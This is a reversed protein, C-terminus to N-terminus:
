GLACEMVIITYPVRLLNSHVHPSVVPFVTRALRVYEEETRIFDGRDNKQLWRDIPNQLRGRNCPDFSVFRGRDKLFSRALKMLHIAQDDTLHHLVGTSLAIDMNSYTNPQLNAIDQCFFTGREGYRKKADEIYNSEIDIGIYEGPPLFQLHDCPGCGMDIIRDGPEPRIYENVHFQQVAPAGLLEMALRYVSASSLMPHLGEVLGM